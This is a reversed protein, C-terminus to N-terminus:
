RYKWRMCGLGICELKWRMCAIRSANSKVSAHMETYEIKEPAHMAISEILTESAHMAICEIPIESAHMEVWHMRTELGNKMEISAISIGLARMGICILKIKEICADCHLRHKISSNM